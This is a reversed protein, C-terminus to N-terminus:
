SKWHVISEKMLGQFTTQRIKNKLKKQPTGTDIGVEQTSAYEEYYKRDIASSRVAIAEAGYFYVVQFRRQRERQSFPRADFIFPSTQKQLEGKSRQLFRHSIQQKFADERPEEQHGSKEFQTRQPSNQKVEESANDFNYSEINYQHFKSYICMIKTIAGIVLSRFLESLDGPKLLLTIWFGQRVRFACGWVM